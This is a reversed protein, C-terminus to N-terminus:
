EPAVWILREGVAAKALGDTGAVQVRPEGRTVAMGVRIRGQADFVTVAGSVQENAALIAVGPKGDARAMVFEVGLETMELAAREVGAADVLVFASARSESLKAPKAGVILITVLAAAPALAVLRLRHLSKELRDVRARM